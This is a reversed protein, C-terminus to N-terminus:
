MSPLNKVWSFIFRSPARAVTGDKRFTYVYKKADAAGMRTAWDKIIKATPADEARKACGDAINILSKLMKRDAAWAADLFKFTWHILAAPLYLCNRRFVDDWMQQM